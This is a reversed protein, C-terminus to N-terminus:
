LWLEKLEELVLKYRPRSPDEVLAHRQNWLQPFEITPGSWRDLNDPCDDVLVSHGDDLPDKKGGWICYTPMHFANAIGQMKPGTTAPDATAQTAIVVQVRHVNGLRLVANVFEAAGPYAKVTGWFEPTDFLEWCDKAPVNFADHLRYSGKPYNAYWTELSGQYGWKKQGAAHAAAHMDMLVGDSDLVIRTLIM